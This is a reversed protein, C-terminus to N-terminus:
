DPHYKKIIELERKNYPFSFNIDNGNHKFDIYATTTNYYIKSESLLQKIHPNKIILKDETLEYKKNLLVYILILFCIFILIILSM